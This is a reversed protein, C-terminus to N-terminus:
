QLRLACPGKMMHYAHFALRYVFSVIVAFWVGQLGYSANYVATLLVGMVVMNTCHTKALYECEGAGILVGEIVLTVASLMQAFAIHPAVMQVMSVIAPDTTFTWTMESTILLAVGGLFLGALGSLSLLLRAIRRAKELNCQVDRAIFSTASVFLPDCFYTLFWFVQLAVQHAASAIVGMKTATISIATYIGMRCMSGLLLMGSVNLLVKVSRFSPIRWDKLDVLRRRGLIFLFVTAASVQAVLTALAAGTLGMGLGFPTVLVFDLAANIFAATLFVKLPTRSDQQGLCGGQAVNCILVAPLALARIRLYEEAAPLMTSNAGMASLLYPATLELFATTLVGLTVALFLGNLLAKSSEGKRDSANARAVLSTTAISLFTFLQFVFNFVATCPALAALDVSNIHGVCATDILSMLPDALIAGFAPLGLKWIEKMESQSMTRIIALYANRIMDTFYSTTRFSMASTSEASSFDMLASSRARSDPDVKELEAPNTGDSTAPGKERREPTAHCSLRDPRRARGGGHRRTLRVATTHEQHTRTGPAVLGSAVYGARSCRGSPGSVGWTCHGRKDLGPGQGRALTAMAAAVM